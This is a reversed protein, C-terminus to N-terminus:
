LAIRLTDASTARWTATCNWTEAPFGFPRFSVVISRTATERALDAGYRRCSCLKMNMSYADFEAYGRLDMRVVRARRSLAPVFARFAEGSEALGHIMVVTPAPSWPDTFDDLAYHVRVGPATEIMPM